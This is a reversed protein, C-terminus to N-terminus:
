ESEARLNRLIIGKEFVRPRFSVFRYRKLQFGKLLKLTEGLGWILSGLDGDLLGKWQCRNELFKTLEM